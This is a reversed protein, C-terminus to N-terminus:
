ASKSRGARSRALSTLLTQLSALDVPKVLHHDFGADRVRQRDEDQGWGTLAIIAVRQPSSFERLRRAVEYGDMGPMGIDLLVADPERLEFEDLASVGDHAVHVDAGTTHLLMALSEAADRNDDVVLVRLSAISGTQQREPKPAAVPRVNLPLRVSFCSGKGPGESSAEVRGGHMETLRRVLALGIGLGSQNRQASFAGRWFIQFLNGLKHPPIGDGSDRITVLADGGDRRATVEILGGKDSYKAANNLLNAFIQALRVRDANLILPEDPMSVILRHKGARILPESTEIASNIAVDLRVQERRLEVLGRTIRSVELLDDVLRVLHSLQRDMIDLATVASAPAQAVRRVFELSSRLPALPNRLEHSLTALFEDKRNDAERMTERAVISESIDRFYCVAGLRGGPLPIRNTRWEYYEKIQQGLRTASFEPVTQAEGTRLTREVRQTIEAAPEQPWVSQLLSGFDRGIPELVAPGGILPLAIPNVAVIRFHEDILFVGFPAENFLTEFQQRAEEARRRLEASRILTGARVLLERASFPKVLYDDAGRDLGEIRSEEGARASLLIIPIGRLQPDARVARILGFGDLRPMMVDSIILDPRLERAADLASQGDSVAHVAYHESLLRRAYERLDANDDALLVCPLDEPLPAAAQADPLWELAEAVYAGAGIASSKAALATATHIREPPLHATGKPIRVLFTTGQGPLSAVTIAGGHLKVIEHVLALGIGSGEHSRGRANQVRHFREFMRPLEDPPIGIGSDSVTMEVAGDADRIRVAIEGEFTFKFANSLLNLVVKDWMERDVYVATAIPKCDVVFRIGARECASRFNSALDATLACLDTPEYSAQARGAEIRAFDLLTNVLRLLRLGNRHTVALMARDDPPWDDAKALLDELPGLMLTLPTRFEHSVNSFFATKARDLEALQEARRREDQLARVGALAASVNSGVLKVFDRYDDDFKRRASLGCVLYGYTENARSALRLVAVQKVREPWPGGPLEVGAPPEALVFEADSGVPWTDHRNTADITAPAARDGAAIGTVAELRAAGVDPDWSYLMAFPVDKGYSELVAATNRFVEVASDVGSGVRGLDRLAALRRGGVVRGTTESVICFVGGVRGTEDRVPDYSVDFYTEEAYGHRELAFLHDQAWFAEGDDVVGRFLPALVDWIESWAERAPKGLAAPHKSGFVPRYADNYISVLEPGWFVVIQAKSPLLHSVCSRLSQPWGEVPGLPTTGWDKARILAGLEGGGVLWDAALPRPQQM